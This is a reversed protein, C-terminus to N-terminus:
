WKAAVFGPSANSRAAASPCRNSMGAPVDTLNSGPTSRSTDSTGSAPRRTTGPSRPGRHRADVPRPVRRQQPRGDAVPDPQRVGVQQDLHGLIAGHARGTGAVLHDEAAALHDALRHSLREGCTGVAGGIQHDGTDHHEVVPTHHLGVDAHPVAPDDADALCAVGVGHVPHIGREHDSRGCLDDAAVPLDEGGATDVAV